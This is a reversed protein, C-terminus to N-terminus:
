ITFISLGIIVDPNNSSKDSILIIKENNFNIENEYFLKKMILTLKMKM